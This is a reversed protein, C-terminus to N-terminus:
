KNVKEFFMVYEHKFVYFNHKLARYRWLHYQGRKGRNEHIDKVCISKLRFGHQRVVEMTQFGLPIWEGRAYKDGIVLVLFRGQALLPAFNGVV